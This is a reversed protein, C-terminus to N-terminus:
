LINLNFPRIRFNDSHPSNYLSELLHDKPENGSESENCIMMIVEESCKKLFHEDTIKYAEAIATETDTLFAPHKAMNVHLHASAYSAADVGSHGDFVAYYSHAPVNQLGLLFNLDHHIVHRDEMKRRKNKIAFVSASYPLSCSSCVEKENMNEMFSNCIVPLLKITESYLTISNLFKEENENEEFQKSIGADIQQATNKALVVALQYPCKAM